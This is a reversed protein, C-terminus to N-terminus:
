KPTGSKRVRKRITQEGAQEGAEGSCTAVDQVKKKAPAKKAKRAGRVGTEADQAGTEADQAGTGADQAGTGADQAGTEAGQAGTEAGQTGTEAGQAGTAAGQTGTEAGQAGTAAGQQAGTEAGQQAGEGTAGAAAGNNTDAERKNEVAAGNNTDAERKNEVAAGNNTDAERKNEVAARKNYKRKPKAKMEGEEAEETKTETASTKPQKPQKPEKPLKPSKRKTRATEGAGNKEKGGSRKNSGARAQAGSHHRRSLAAQEDQLTVHWALAQLLADAYDDKKHNGVSPITTGLHDTVFSVGARKHLAYRAGNKMAKLEAAPPLVSRVLVLKKQPSVWHLVAEPALRRFVQRMTQACNMMKFNKAASGMHLSAPQQEILITKLRPFWAADFTGGTFYDALLDCCDTISRDNINGWQEAVGMAAPVDVCQWWMTDFKHAATPESSSESSPPAAAPESSSESSSPAATPESSSPAASSSSPAAASESSSPAATPESSSPAAASESSSPAPPRPHLKGIWIALNTIGVDISMTLDGHFVAYSLVLPHAANEGTQTCQIAEDHKSKSGQKGKGKGKGKDKDKEKGKSKGKGKGGGARKGSDRAATPKPAARCADAVTATAPLEYDGVWFVHQAQNLHDHAQHSHAQHPHAQHSHTLSGHSHAQHSHAQHSHAQHEHPADGGQHSHTLSGHSHATANESDFDLGIAHVLDAVVMDDKVLVTHYQNRRQLSEIRVHVLKTTPLPAGSTAAEAEPPASSTAVEPPASSTAVEPAASSDSM